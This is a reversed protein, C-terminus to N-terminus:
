VEKKLQADSGMQKEYLAMDQDLEGKAKRHLPRVVSVPERNNMASHFAALPPLDDLCEEALTKKDPSADEITVLHCGVIRALFDVAAQAFDIKGREMLKELTIGLMIIPNKTVSATMAKDASWRELTRESVNWIKLLISKGLHYIAGSFWEHPDVPTRTPRRDM